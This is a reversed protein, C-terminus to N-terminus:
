QRLINKDISNETPFNTYCFRIFWLGFTTRTTNSLKYQYPNLQLNNEMLGYSIASEM